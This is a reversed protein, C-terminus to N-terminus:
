DVGTSKGSERWAKKNESDFIKAPHERTHPKDADGTWHNVPQNNKLKRDVV